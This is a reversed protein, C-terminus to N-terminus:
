RAARSSGAVVLRANVDAIKYDQKAKRGTDPATSAIRVPFSGAKASPSAECALVFETREPPVEVGPCKVGDPLDEVELRIAGGEFTPERRVNGAVEAKGGPNVEIASKAVHIEYGPVVQIEIAPSTIDVKKGNVEVETEVLMDFTTFPTAFNTNLLFAGTDPDKSEPKLVRLNGVEGAIQQGVKAASKFGTSRALRWDLKYEVGQALRVLPTPSVLTVPLASTVAMPLGMGLWAATVPKQKVGRVPVVLGPGRAYRVMGDPTEAIVTLETPQAKVDPAATLTLTSRALRRGANENTFLQAAAESPVHGGAVSFGDPLNPIRLRIEGDYGQRQIVVLVQATGGVPVNVYPTALDVRFDPHQKRAELRYGYADGGRAMLDEVAVTIETVAAPVTFPLVPDLGAGDDGSALKKGAGDSLTVLADLRSTGLSAATVEFVWQEGPSVSLRYRDVERPKGIRGNVITGEALQMASGDAPELVERKDSLAFWLPLSGASPVRVPVLASKSQV